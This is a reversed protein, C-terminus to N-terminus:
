ASVKSLKSAKSSKSKYIGEIEKIGDVTTVVNVHNLLDVVNLSGVWMSTVRNINAVLRGADKQSSPLAVMTKGKKLPLAKMLTVVSKTKKDSMSFSDLM